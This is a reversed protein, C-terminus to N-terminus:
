SNEGSFDPARKELFAAYGERFEAGAFTDVFAAQLDPRNAPESLGNCILKITSLAAPALSALHDALAAASAASHEELRDILGIKLAEQADVARGTMLLDRARPMGVKEILQLTDVPSYALGLRAPTIAFSAGQDAICFDCALALACGGGYCAGRVEAITPFPLDRLRAQANCIKANYSATMEPSGYVEEFESIDAGACFAKDGAGTVILVRTGDSTLIDCIEPLAAWMAATMANRRTPRNLTLQAVTGPDLCLDSEAFEVTM